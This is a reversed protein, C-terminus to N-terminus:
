KAAAEPRVQVMLGGQNDALGPSGENISLYLTGSQVATLRAALGVAQPMALPTVAAGGSDDSVGALLMGLPRGRYYHITVGGAECPWPRPDRALLFQGAGRVLYTKGAELQIGSSQWGRDAALKVTEGGAALPHAPKHVVASRAFDYGYDCNVIFLQWDQEIAPWDGRLKEYFRRSFEISREKVDAKLARFAAQTQPHQDFFAAAGWCWGYPEDRLHAHADYKMIQTLSM